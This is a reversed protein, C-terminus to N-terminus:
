ACQRLTSRPRQRELIAAAAYKEAQWVQVQADPMARSLVTSIRDAKSRDMVLQHGSAGHRSDWTVVFM